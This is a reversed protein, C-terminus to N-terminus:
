DGGERHLPNFYHLNIDGHRFIITEVRATSHISILHESQFNYHSPTEVRATSHISIVAGCVLRFLRLFTEVRATSHISIEDLKFISNANYTEVRATSHISIPIGM